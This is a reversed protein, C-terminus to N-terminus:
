CWGGPDLVMRELLLLKSICLLAFDFYTHIGDFKVERKHSDQLHKFLDHEWSGNM